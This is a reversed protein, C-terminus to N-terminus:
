KEELYLLLFTFALKKEKEESEGKLPALFRRIARRLRLM